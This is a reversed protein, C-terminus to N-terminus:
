GQPKLLAKLKQVAHHFNVKANTETIELASAIEAFSLDADIRM